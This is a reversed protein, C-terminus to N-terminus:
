IEDFLNLGVLARRGAIGGPYGRNLAQIDTLYLPRLATLFIKWFNELFDSFSAKDCCIV